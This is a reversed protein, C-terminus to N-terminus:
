TLWSLEAISRPTKFPDRLGSTEIGASLVSAPDGSLVIGGRDMVMFVSALALVKEVEHTIVLVAM